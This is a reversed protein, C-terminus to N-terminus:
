GTVGDHAHRERGVFDLDLIVRALLQMVETTTWREAREPPNGQALRADLLAHLFRAKFLKPTSTRHHQQYFLTKMTRKQLPTWTQDPFPVTTSMTAKTNKM